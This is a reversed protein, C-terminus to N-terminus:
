HIVDSFFSEYLFDSHVSHLDGFRQGWRDPWEAKSFEEDETGMCEDNVNYYGGAFYVRLWPKDSLGDKPNCDVVSVLRIRNDDDYWEYIGETTPKM